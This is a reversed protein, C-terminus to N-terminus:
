RSSGAQLHDPKVGSGHPLLPKVNMEFRLSPIDVVIGSHPLTLEQSYGSTNGYYGGGTEEGVFIALENTYMMNTFESGGSYTVPGILVYVKGQFKNKPEKKYATLGHGKDMKRYIMGDEGAENQLLLELPGFTKFKVPKDSGNDLITRQTKASVSLYKQYNPGLYSYLLNENGENGGGNEHVDIILHQINKEDITQFSSSLFKSYDKHIKNEKYEYNSFSHVALYAISDNILRFELCNNIVEGEEGDKKGENQKELLASNERVESFTLSPLIIEEQEFEVRFEAAQGYWLYYYKAFSFGELDSYKVRKVYGDSAFLSGIKQVISEISEGNIRVVEKGTIDKQVGSYNKNFYMKTGLFVVSLPLYKAHSNMQEETEDPLYINCHDERSLVVIPAIIKHFELVNMDGNISEKAKQFALDLSDKSTYWYLGTHYKEMGQKFLELDQRLLDKSVQPLDGYDQGSGTLNILSFVSLLILQFLQIQFRM